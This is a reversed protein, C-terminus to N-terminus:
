ERLHSFEQSSFIDSWLKDTPIIEINSDVSKLIGLWASIVIIRITLQRTQLANLKKTFPVGDMNLINRITNTGNCLVLLNEIEKQDPIPLGIQAIFRVFIDYQRGTLENQNNVPVENLLSDPIFNIKNPHFDSWKKSLMIGFKEIIGFFRTGPFPTAFSECWKMKPHAPLQMFATNSLYYSDLNEGINCTMILPLPVLGAKLIINIAKVIEEISQNKSINKLVENNISEIGLEIAECGSEKLIKIKERNSIVSDCRSQIVFKWGKNFEKIKRILDLAKGIDFLFDDDLFHFNKYGHLDDFIKMEEIVNDSSRYRVKRKWLLPSCCFFCNYACGRSHMIFACPDDNVHITETYEHIDYKSYDPIPCTDLESIFKRQETEYYQSDRMIAIGAITDIPKNNYISEVIDLFTVEGEGLVCCDCGSELSLLPLATVHPGGHIIQINNAKRKLHETLKYSYEASITLISIGLIDPKRELIIKAMDRVNTKYTRADIVEIEVPVKVYKKVYAAVSAIGYPIHGINTEMPPNLLIIKLAKNM